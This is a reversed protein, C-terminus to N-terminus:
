VKQWSFLKRCNISSRIQIWWHQKLPKSCVYQYRRKRFKPIYVHTHCNMNGSKAGREVRLRFTSSNCAEVLSPKALHSICFRLWARCPSLALLIDSSLKSRAQFSTLCFNPKLNLKLNLKSFLNRTGYVWTSIIQYPTLLLM